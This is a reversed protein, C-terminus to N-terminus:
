AEGMQGGLHKLVWAGAGHRRAHDIVRRSDYPREILDCQLAETDVTVACARGAAHRSQGVSGPNIIRPRTDWSLTPRHTQGFALLEYSFGALADLRPSDAYLYDSLPNWPSGHSLLWSRGGLEGGWTWPLTGLWARHGTDIVRDAHEVGFCVAQNASPPCGHLLFHDHNGLLCLADLSRVFDLAENVQCYYGVYDGLCVVKDANELVDQLALLAELNAHIDSVIAIHM